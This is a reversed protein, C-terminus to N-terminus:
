LSNYITGSEMIIRREKMWVDRMLSQVDLLYPRPSALVNNLLKKAQAYEQKLKLLKDM